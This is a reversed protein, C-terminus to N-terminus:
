EHELGIYLVINSSITAKPFVLALRESFTM